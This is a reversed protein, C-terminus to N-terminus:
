LGQFGVKIAYVNLKLNNLLLRILTKLREADPPTLKGDIELM